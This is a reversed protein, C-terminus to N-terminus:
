EKGVRREESRENLLWPFVLTQKGNQTRLDLKMPGQLLGLAQSSFVPQQVSLSARFKDSGRWRHSRDELCDRMDSGRVRIDEDCSLVSGAFFHDRACNM